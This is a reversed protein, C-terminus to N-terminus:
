LRCGSPKCSSRRLRCRQMGFKKELPCTAVRGPKLYHTGHTPQSAVWAVLTGRLNESFILSLNNFNVSSDEEPSYGPEREPFVALGRIACLPPRGHTRNRQEPTIPSDNKRQTESCSDYCHTCTSVGRQRGCVTTRIPALLEITWTCELAPPILTTAFQPDDPSVSYCELLNVHYMELAQSNNGTESRKGAAQKDSLMRSASTFLPSFVSPPFM